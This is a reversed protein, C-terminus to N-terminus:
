AHQLCYLSNEARKGCVVCADRLPHFAPPKKGANQVADVMPPRASQRGRGLNCQPCALKLNSLEHTGGKSQPTVHELTAQNAPPRRGVGRVSFPHEKLPRACYCCTYGDRAGVIARLRKAQSGHLPRVVRTM